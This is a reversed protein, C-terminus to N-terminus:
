GRERAIIEIVKLFGWIVIILVLAIGFCSMATLFASGGWILAILGGGVVITIVIGGLILERELQGRYERSNFPREPKRTM